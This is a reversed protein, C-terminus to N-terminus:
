ELRWPERETETRRHPTHPLLQRACAGGTQREELAGKQSLPKSQRLDRKQNQERDPIRRPKQRHRLDRDRYISLTEIGYPFPIAM